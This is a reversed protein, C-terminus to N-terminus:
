FLLYIIIIGRFSIKNVNLEIEINNLILDDEFFDFSYKMRRLIFLNTNNFQSNSALSSEHIEYLNSQNSM